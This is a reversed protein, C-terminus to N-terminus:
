AGGETNVTESVCGLPDPAPTAHEAAHVKGGDVMQLLLLRIPGRVAAGREMRCVTSQDIGLRRAMEAQSIGLRLRIDKISIEMHM